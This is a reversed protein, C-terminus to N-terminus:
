VPRHLVARPLSKCVIWLACGFEQFFRPVRQCLILSEAPRMKHATHNADPFGPFSPDDIPFKREPLPKSTGVAAYYKQGFAASIPRSIRGNLHDGRFDKGRIIDVLGCLERAPGIGRLKRM